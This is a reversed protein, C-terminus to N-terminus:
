SSPILKSSDLSTASNSTTKRRSPSLSQMGGAPMPLGDPGLPFGILSRNVDGLASAEGEEWRTDFRKRLVTLGQEVHASTTSSSSLLAAM